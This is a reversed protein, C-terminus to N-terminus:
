IPHSRPLVRALQSRAHIIDEEICQIPQDGTEAIDGEDGIPPDHAPARAIKDEVLLEVAFRGIQDNRGAVFSVDDAGRGDARPMAHRDCDPCPACAIVTLGHRQFAAHQEVHRSQGIDRTPFPPFWRTPVSASNDPLLSWAPDPGALRHTALPSLARLLPDSGFIIRSSPWDLPQTMTFKRLRTRAPDVIECSNSM